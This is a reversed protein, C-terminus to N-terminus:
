TCKCIEYNFSNKERFNVCLFVVSRFRTMKIEKHKEFPKKELETWSTLLHNLTVEDLCYDEKEKSSRSKHSVEKYKYSMYISKDHTRLFFGM